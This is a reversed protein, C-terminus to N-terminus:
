KLEEQLILRAKKERKILILLEKHVSRLPSHVSEFKM